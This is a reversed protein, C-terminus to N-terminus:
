SPEATLPSRRERATDLALESHWCKAWVTEGDLSLRVGYSGEYLRTAPNFLDNVRDVRCATGVPITRGDEATLPGRTKVPEGYAFCNSM